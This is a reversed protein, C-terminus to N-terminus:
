LLSLGTRCFVVFGTLDPLFCRYSSREPHWPRVPGGTPSKKTCFKEHSTTFDWRSFQVARIKGRLFIAKGKMTRLPVRAHAKIGSNEHQSKQAIKAPHKKGIIEETPFTEDGADQAVFIDNDYNKLLQLIM